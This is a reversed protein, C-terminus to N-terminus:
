INIKIIQGPFISRSELNNLKNISEVTVGFRIAIESLVDGKQIEYNLYDPNDEVFTGELPNELFYNHIGLFISRAIMRRGPKGKLREADEPNTMFGSEVLVSPIDISKLVRFDAYEVNKKHIKTYPDKKLENLIKEGLIESDKIKQKYIEPYAKRAVDENFDDEMINKIDAQIRKRQKESLNRAVSSSAEESWIFVSAGKVSELRFGDAHISIFIDAAYQRARQYRDNLAVTEDGERIMVPSYGETDRLTRQLEKAILLTVDKELINNTGVAGPYKGGHGADIAVVIDRISSKLKKNKSIQLSLLVGKDNKIQKPKIWDVYEYLDVVIRTINDKSTARIKKIPYNYPEDIISSLDSDYVDMVIRSPNELSYSKIFSVRELIFNIEISGGKLEDVSKFSIENSKAFFSLVFGCILFLKNM